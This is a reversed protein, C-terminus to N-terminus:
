SEDLSSYLRCCFLVVCSVSSVVALCVFVKESYPDTCSRKGNSENKSNDKEECYWSTGTVVM